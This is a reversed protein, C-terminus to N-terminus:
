SRPATFSLRWAEPGRDRYNVTFREPFRQEIQTLLPLPDHHAVLTLGSGNRISELAGFVTAHRIAHPITRVDLEPYDSDEVIGCECGNSTPQAGPAAEAHRHTREVIPLNPRETDAVLAASRARAPGDGCLTLLLHSATHAELSHPVKADVHIIAGTPMDLAEGGVTFTVHGAVVQVLIPVAATHEKMIQGTDFSLKVVKAGAGKFIRTTRLAAPEVPLASLIAATNEAILTYPAPATSTETM